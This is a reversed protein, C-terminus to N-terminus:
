NLKKVVYFDSTNHLLNIIAGMVSARHGLTSAVLQPQVPITGNIRELIPDILLDASRAVGGGLVIVDPDFCVAVAAIAQALYDVTAEVVPRAWEESCRFAEFIDEAHLAKLKEPPWKGDLMRRAREAIGGGSSELELAGFGEMSQGLYSRDPLFYGIEGATLHSGRYVAGDIVIGAGIGTGVTILVLNNVNQGAGFWMEGLASLNVDNEVIVPLDFRKTLRDKLPFDRWELSPAWQVIGQEHLTVGPAGVGIGRIQRGTGHAFDLLREILSELHIYAAEGKMGNHAVTEEGLICGALDAVAGYMKTGGLDIGITLHEGANFELMLASAGAM